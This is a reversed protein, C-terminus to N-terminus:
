RELDMATSETSDWFGGITGNARGEALLDTEGTGVVGDGDLDIWRLRKSQSAFELDFEEKFDVEDRRYGAARHGQMIKHATLLAHALAFQRGDVMDVFRGTHPQLAAELRGVLDDFALAVQPEWSRQREPVQKALLPVLALVDEHGVGTSFPSKVVDLLGSDQTSTTTALRLREAAGAALAWM